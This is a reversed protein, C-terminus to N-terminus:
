KYDKLLIERNHVAVMQDEPGSKIKREEEHGHNVFMNDRFTQQQSSMVM